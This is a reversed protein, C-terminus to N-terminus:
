TTSVKLKLGTGFIIIIFLLFVSSGTLANPGLETTPHINLLCLGSTIALVLWTWWRAVGGLTYIVEIGKKWKPLLSVKPLTPVISFQEEPGSDGVNKNVSLCFWM